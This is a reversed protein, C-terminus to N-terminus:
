RLVDYYAGLPHYGTRVEPTADIAETEVQGDRTLQFYWNGYKQNVVNDWAYDWIRDYWDWYQDDGTCDTLRAAGAFGQALPWYYKDWVLPEGERDLYDM